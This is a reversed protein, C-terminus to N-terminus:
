ELYGKVKRMAMSWNKADFYRKLRTEASPRDKRRANLKESCSRKDVANVTLHLIGLKRLRETHWFVFGLYRLGGRLRCVYVINAAVSSLGENAWRYGANPGQISGEGEAPIEDYAWDHRSAARMRWSRFAKSFFGQRNVSMNELVLRMQERRDANFLRHLFPLGLSLIHEIYEDHLEHKATETWFSNRGSPRFFDQCHIATLSTLPDSDIRTEYQEEDFTYDQLATAEQLSDTQILKLFNDELQDFLHGVYSHLCQWICAMEEIEWPAFNSFFIKEQEAPSIKRQRWRPKDDSYFLSAYFDLRYFARQLRAEEVPALRQSTAWFGFRDNAAFTFGCRDLARLTNKTLISILYEVSPHLRCLLVSTSLPLVHDPSPEAESDCYARMLTEVTDRDPGRPHCQSAVAAAIADPLAESRIMQKVLGSLILAKSADFIEYYYPSARIFAYLSKRSNLLRMIQVVIEFPVKEAASPKEFGYFWTRRKHRPISPGSIDM